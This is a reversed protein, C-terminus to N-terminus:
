DVKKQWFLDRSNMRDQDAFSTAVMSAGMGGFTSGGDRSMLDDQLHSRDLGNASPKLLDHDRATSM